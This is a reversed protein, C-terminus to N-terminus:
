LKTTYLAIGVSTALNISSIGKQMPISVIKDAREKLKKSVGRRESGFIFISERSLKTEFLNEGREDFIIFPKRLSSIDEVHLVPLAYHLGQAGRIVQPRWPDLKGMIFVAHARAAAAVRIASGVNGPHSPEDLLVIPNLQKKKLVDDLSYHPKEAVAIIKSEPPTPSLERFLKETVIEINALSTKIDPALLATLQNLYDLDCTVCKIIEANFRFAHKIAHFGELVVKNKSKRANRFKEILDRHEKM